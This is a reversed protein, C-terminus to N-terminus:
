GVLRERLLTFHHDRVRAAVHAAQELQDGVEGAAAAEHALEHPGLDSRGTGRAAGSPTACDTFRHSPRATAPLPLDQRAGARRPAARRSADRTSGLVLRAALARTCTLM